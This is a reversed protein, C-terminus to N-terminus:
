AAGTTITGLGRAAFMAAISKGGDDEEERAREARRTPMFDLASVPDADKRRNLNATLATLQAVM